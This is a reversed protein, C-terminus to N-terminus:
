GRYVESTLFVKESVHDQYAISIPIQTSFNELAKRAKELALEPLNCEQSLHALFVHELKSHVIEQLLYACHDNSLHGERGLVRQKYVLPRSSAHVMQPEHNSEIYLLDCLSLRMKVLSTVVGIDACVGIKREGITLTFGVPDATDHSISFPHFEINGFYFNEGTSFIKFKPLQTMSQAMAKATEHNAIVPISLTKALVEVGKIHDSHEHTIVVGDIEGIDVDIAELRQKLQKFSLGADILLKTQDSAVYLANGKSGSALPCFCTM